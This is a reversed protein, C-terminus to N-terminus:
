TFIPLSPGYESQAMLFILVMKQKLSGEKISPYFSIFLPSLLERHSNALVHGAPNWDKFFDRGKVEEAVSPSQQNRVSSQRFGNDDEDDDDDEEIYKFGQGEQRRAGLGRNVAPAKKPHHSQALSEYGGAKSQGTVIANSLFEDPQVIKTIKRNVARLNTLVGMCADGELFSDGFTVTTNPSENGNSTKDKKLKSLVHLVKRALHEDEIQKAISLSKNANEESKEHVGMRYFSCALFKYAEATLKLDKVKVAVKQLENGKEVGSKYDGLMYLSWALIRLAQVELETDDTKQSIILVESAYKKSEAYNQDEYCDEAKKIKELANQRTFEM